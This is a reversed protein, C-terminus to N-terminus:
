STYIYIYIQERASRKARSRAAGLLCVAPTKVRLRAFLTSVLGIHGATTHMKGVRKTREECSFLHAAVGLRLRLLGVQLAPSTGLPPAALPPAPLPRAFTLVADSGAAQGPSSARRDMNSSSFVAGAREEESARAAVPAGQREKARSASFAGFGRTAM